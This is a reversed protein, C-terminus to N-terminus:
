FRKSMKEEEKDTLNKSKMINVVTNIEEYTISPYIKEEIKKYICNSFATSM